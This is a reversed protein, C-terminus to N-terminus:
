LIDSQVTTAIAVSGPLVCAKIVKWQKQKEDEQLRRKLEAECDLFHRRIEKGKETGAMMGLSKFCDVTLWISESPRGGTPSKASSRLFDLGEKFNNLLVEKANRKAKYGIWRWADDFDVPFSETSELLFFASEESFVNSAKKHEKESRVPHEETKQKSQPQPMKDEAHRNQELIAIWERVWRSVQIAFFPNCWQALQIALDPHLWVGGGNAPSARKSVVLDPYAATVRTKVSNPKKAPNPKVGLDNALATVLDWTGDTKLWDSIDKGHAVCM